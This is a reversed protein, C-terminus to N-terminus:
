TPRMVLGFVHSGGVLDDFCWFGRAVCAGDVCPNDSIGPNRSGAEDEIRHSPDPRKRARGSRALWLRSRKPLPLRRRPLMAATAQMRTLDFRLALIDGAFGDVYGSAHRCPSLTPLHQHRACDAVEHCAGIQRKTSSPECERM